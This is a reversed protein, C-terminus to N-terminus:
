YLVGRIDRDERWGQSAEKNNIARWFALTEEADPIEEEVGFQMPFTKNRRWFLNLRRDERQRRKAEQRMKEWVEFQEERKSLEEIREVIKEKTTANEIEQRSGRGFIEELRRMVEDKSMKGQKVIAILAKARQTRKRAEGNMKKEGTQRRKRQTNHAEKMVRMAKRMVGRYEGFSTINILDDHANIFDCVRKATEWM